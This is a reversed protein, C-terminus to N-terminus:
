KTMGFAEGGGGSPGAGNGGAGGANPMGWNVTLKVSAEASVKAFFLTGEESFNLGFQVSSSDPKYDGLSNISKRLAECFPKIIELMKEINKDATEIAGTAPVLGEQYVADTSEVLIKSGNYELQILRGMNSCSKLSYYKVNLVAENCSDTTKLFRVLVSYKADLNNM